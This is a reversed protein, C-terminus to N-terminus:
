TYGSPRSPTGSTNSAGANAPMTVKGVYHRNPNTATAFADAYSTSAVYSVLGGARSAQDYYIFYTSGYSVGTVTGAQVTLAGSPYQRIHESVTISGTAAVGTITLGSPWSLMAEVATSSTEVKATSTRLFQSWILSFLNKGDLVPMKLPPILREAM